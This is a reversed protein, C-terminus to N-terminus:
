KVLGALVAVPFSINLGVIVYTVVRTVVEIAKEYRTFRLGLSQFLSFAGHHLHFGLVVMAVIYFGAAPVSQFGTVVNAYVDTSSFAPHVSGATLHLLHFLIFAGIIPGSLVMTRSALSGKQFDQTAYSVPRASRNRLWLTLSLVIHLGVATLLVLRAGWLVPPNSKLLHAYANIKEPGAYLQLNGLMHVFVFGYMILGTIALVTKKAVSTSFPSVTTVIASVLWM